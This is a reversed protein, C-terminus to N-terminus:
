IISLDAVVQYTHGADEICKRFGGEIREGLVEDDLPAFLCPIFITEVESTMLQVDANQAPEFTTASVHMIQPIAELRQKLAAQHADFKMVDPSYLQIIGNKDFGLDKEYYLRCTTAQMNM